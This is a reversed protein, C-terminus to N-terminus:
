DAAGAVPPLPPAPLLKPGLSQEARGQDPLETQEPKDEILKKYTQKEFSIATFMNVRAAEVVAWADNVQSPLGGMTFARAAAKLTATAAIVRELCSEWQGLKENTM